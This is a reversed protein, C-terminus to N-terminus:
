LRRAETAAETATALLSASAVGDTASRMNFLSGERGTHNNSGVPPILLAEAVSARLEVVKLVPLTAGCRLGLRLGAYM